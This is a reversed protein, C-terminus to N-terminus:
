VGGNVALSLRRKDGGTITRHSLSVGAYGRARARVRHSPTGAPAVAVTVTVLRSPRSLTSHGERGPYAGAACARAPSSPWRGVAGSRAPSPPSTPGSGATWRAIRYGAWLAVGVVLGGVAPGLEAVAWTGGLVASNTGFVAWPLWRRPSRVVTGAGVTEVKPRGATTLGARRKAKTDHTYNAGFSVKRGDRTKFEPRFVKTAAM